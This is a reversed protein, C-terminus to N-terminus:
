EEEMVKDGWLVPTSIFFDCEVGTQDSGTGVIDEVLVAISLEAM